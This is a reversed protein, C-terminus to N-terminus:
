QIATTALASKIHSSQALTADHEVGSYRSVRITVHERPRRRRKRGAEENDALGDNVCHHFSLLLSCPIGEPSVFVYTVPFTVPNDRSMAARQM